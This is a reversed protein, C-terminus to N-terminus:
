CLLMRYHQYSLLAQSSEITSLMAHPLGPVSGPGAEDVRDAACCATIGTRLRLLFPLRPRLSQRAQPCYSGVTRNRCSSSVQLSGVQSFRAAVAHASGPLFDPGTEAEVLCLM